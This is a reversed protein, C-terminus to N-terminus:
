EQAGDAMAILIEYGAIHCVVEMAAPGYDRSQPQLIIRKCTIQAFHTYLSLM